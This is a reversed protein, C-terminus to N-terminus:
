ISWSTLQLRASQRTYPSQRHPSSYDPYDYDGYGGYGYGTPWEIADFYDGMFLLNDDAYSWFAEVQEPNTPDIKNMLYLEDFVEEPDRRLWEGNEQKYFSRSSIGEPGRITDPVFDGSFDINLFDEMFQEENINYKDGEIFDQFLAPDFGQPYYIMHEEDIYQGYPKDLGRGAGGYYPEEFVQAQNGFVDYWFQQYPNFKSPDQYPQNMDPALDDTAVQEQPPTQQQTPVPDNAGPPVPYRSAPKPPLNIVAGASVKSFNNTKALLTEDVNNEKAIDTYSQGYKPIVYERKSLSDNVFAM